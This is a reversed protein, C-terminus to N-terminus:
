LLCFVILPHDRGVVDINFDFTCVSIDPVTTEM